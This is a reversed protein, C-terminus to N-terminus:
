KIARADMDASIRELSKNPIEDIPEAVEAVRPGIRAALPALADLDFDYMRAANGALMQRIEADPVDHFRARLNERTYPYTGEDHPYDSGWMFKEIGILNRAEVDADSPQSVGMWCNQAFYESADKPLIHDDGYRIEGTAGTERIGRITKDLKALLPPVWACGAETMIFKLRPHREFVGSLVMQVFPRETYFTVENIYLLMSVPYPGYDPNGSGSHVNVPIELEELLSWLPEYCPDYIPKVYKVDPAINPLLLGGRLGHEKIWRADEMADEVNNLFIQGVGARREPFDACFDVLWRNHAHVGARRHRYEEETPPKAFLVFSPFFPPVTNPFIVEAAIGDEEQQGNRMENDWNRLRRNDGLDKYPNRYEGRWADFDDRFEPDLYERYAKHSGGAHTDASIVTYRDGTAKPDTPATQPSETITM